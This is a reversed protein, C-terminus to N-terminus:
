ILQSIVQNLLNQDQLNIEYTIKSISNSIDRTTIKPFNDDVRYVMGANLIQFSFENYIDEAERIYGIEWLADQFKIVANQDEILLEFIANVLQPLKEYDNNRHRKLQLVVLYLNEFDENDLQYQNSIKINFPNNSKTSKVEVGIRNSFVFDHNENYPGEWAQIIDIKEYITETLFQRLILLESFLGLQEKEDLIGINKSKFFNMWSKIRKIVYFMPKIDRESTIQSILDEIFSFFIEDEAEESLKISYFIPLDIDNSPFSSISFSNILNINDIANSIELNGDITQILIIKQYNNDRDLALFVKYKNSVEDFKILRSSYQGDQLNNILNEFTERIM